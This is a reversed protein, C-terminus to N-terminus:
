IKMNKLFTKFSQICCKLSRHIDHNNGVKHIVIHVVTLFTSIYWRQAVNKRRQTVNDRRQTFTPCQRQILTTCRQFDSTLNQKMKLTGNQDVVNFCCQHSTSINAQQYHNYYEHLLLSLLLLFHYTIIVVFDLVVLFYCYYFLLLSLPVIIFISNIILGINIIISILISIGDCLNYYYFCYLLLLLSLSPFLLLLLRYWFQKRYILNKNCHTCIQNYSHLLVNM